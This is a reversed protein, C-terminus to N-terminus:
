SCHMIRFQLGGVAAPVPRTLTAMDDLPSRWEGRQMRVHGTM